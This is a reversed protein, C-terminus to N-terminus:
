FKTINFDDSEFQPLDLFGLSLNAIVQCFQFSLTLVFVFEATIASRVGLGALYIQSTTRIHNSLEDRQSLHNKYFSFPSRKHFSTLCDFSLDFLYFRYKLYFFQILLKGLCFAYITIQYHHSKFSPGNPDSQFTKSGESEFGTFL